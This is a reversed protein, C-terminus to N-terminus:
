ASEQKRKRKKLSKLELVLIFALAAVGTMWSFFTGNRSGSHVKENQQLMSREELFLSELLTEEAIPGATTYGMFISDATRREWAYADSRRQQAYREYQDTFIPVGCDDILFFDTHTREKVVDPNLRLWYATEKIQRSM